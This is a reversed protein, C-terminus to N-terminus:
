GQSKRIFSSLSWLDPQPPKAAETYTVHQGESGGGGGRDTVIRNRTNLKDRNEFATSGDFLVFITLLRDTAAKMKEVGDFRRGRHCWVDSKGEPEDTDLEIM